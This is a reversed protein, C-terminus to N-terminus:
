NRHFHVMKWHNNEKHYIRTEHVTGLKFQGDLHSSNIITYAIYASNGYVRVVPDILEFHYDKPQNHSMFFFHFDLGKVINSSTEPEIATLTESSLEKYTEINGKRIAHLLKVTLDYIEQEEPSFTM